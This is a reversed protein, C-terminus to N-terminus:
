ISPMMWQGWDITNADVSCLELPGSHPQWAVDGRFILDEAVQRDEEDFGRAGVRYAVSLHPDLLLPPAGPCPVLPVQLAHFITRLSPRIIRYSVVRVEGTLRTEINTAGRSEWFELQKRPNQVHTQLTIHPPHAPTDMVACVRRVMSSWPHSKGSVPTLWISRGFM